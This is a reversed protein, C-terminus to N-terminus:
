SAKSLRISKVLRFLMNLLDETSAAEEAVAVEAAVAVETLAEVAAEKSAAVAVEASAAVAAETEM